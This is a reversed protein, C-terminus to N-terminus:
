MCLISYGHLSVHQGNESVCVTIQMYRCMVKKGTFDTNTPLTYSPFQHYGNGPFRTGRVVPDQPDSFSVDTREVQSFLLLM